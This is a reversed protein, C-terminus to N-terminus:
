SPADRAPLLVLALAMLGACFWVAQWNALTENCVVYVAALALVAAAVTEAAPRLDRRRPRSTLLALFPAVAGSLPAFPFDRYRPDFVLGLAAQVALVTLLVLLIGLARALPQRPRETRRGLVQAFSPIAVGATTAAAGVVPALLAVAAWALSRVWDGATLSELPLNEITWGILTGGVFANAAVAFWRGAPAAVRRGAIWAASFVLVALAVGGGAQWRWHPHNSVAAGWMFKPARADADFLGWHGGVTGELQRKWPQDYAVIVNLRYNQRKALAVV